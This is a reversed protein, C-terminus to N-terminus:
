GFQADGSVNCTNRKLDSCDISALLLLSLEDMGSLVPYLVRLALFNDCGLQISPGHVSFTPDQHYVSRRDLIPM